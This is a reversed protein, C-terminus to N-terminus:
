YRDHNTGIIKYKIIAKSVAELQEPTGVNYWVGQYYEGTVQDQAIAKKLLDGLRFTGPQCNAFLEPRYVGINSFTFKQKGSRVIQNAQLYFDGEPHFDPNDVLVLHALKEPYDILKELPYEAIVDGSVVIFPEFGLLPLAKFIGGGTELAQPEESYHLRVGYRVGNGLASKIQEGLYSVNIVIDKIGIKTLAGIAYEILYSGQVRLLPKPTEKTLNAMRQGRGAALIMARM